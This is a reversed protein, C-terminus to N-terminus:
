LRASTSWTSFTLVPNNLQLQQELIQLRLQELFALALEFVFNLGTHAVEFLFM